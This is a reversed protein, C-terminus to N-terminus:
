SDNNSSSITEIDADTAFNPAILSQMLMVSLTALTREEQQRSLYMQYNIESLLIAIEKQVTATSAENIQDIWQKSSDSDKKSPDYLRRTAMQFESLAQSTQKSNDSSQAQPLRKSLISYLNATPVSSQASFTRLKTLYRSIKQQALQKKFLSNADDGDYIADTYLANYEGRKPLPPPTVLRTAYRIFNEAEQAQNNATLGEGDDSNDTKSDNSSTGSSSDTTTYLMPSLLTNSNLQTMIDKNYDFTFFTNPDPITGIVNAMIKSDYLLNCDTWATVDNNMCFTTQPTALLNLVSQSVPDKQYTEQDILASVSIGGQEGTSPNDYSSSSPQTQFTYNAMDNILSYNDTNSPVFYALAESYANVPIAGLLTVFSYQQALTTGSIDLLTAVPNKLEQTIDFGLYAGLNQLYETLTESGEEGSSEAHITQSGILLIGSVISHLLRM